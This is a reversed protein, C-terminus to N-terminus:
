SPSAGVDPATASTAGAEAVRKQGSRWRLLENLASAADLLDGPGLALDGLSSAIDLLDNCLQAVREDSVENPMKPRRRSM